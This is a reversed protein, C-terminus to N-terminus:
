CRCQCYIVELNEVTENSNIDKEIPSLGIDESFKVIVKM